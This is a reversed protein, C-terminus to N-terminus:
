ERPRSYALSFIDLKALETLENADVSASSSSTYNENRENYYEKCCDSSSFESPSDVASASECERERINM